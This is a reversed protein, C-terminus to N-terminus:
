MVIWVFWDVMLMVLLMCWLLILLLGFLVLLGCLVVDFVCVLVFLGYYLCVMLGFGVVVVVWLGVLSLMMFVVCWLVGVCDFVDIVVGFFWCLWDFVVFLLLEGMVYVVCGGIEDVCGMVGVDGGGDLVGVGGGVM